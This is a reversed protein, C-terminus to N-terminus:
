VPTISHLQPLEGVGPGPGVFGADLAVLVGPEGPVGPVGPVGLKGPEEAVGPVGSVGPVGPLVDSVGKGLDLSVVRGDCVPEDVGEVFPESVGLTSVEGPVVGPTGVFLVGPSSDSLVGAVGPTEVGSPGVGTGDSGPLLTVEVRLVCWPVLGALSM